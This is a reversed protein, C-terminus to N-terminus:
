SYNNTFITFFFVFGLFTHVCRKVPPDQIVMEKLKTVLNNYNTSQELIEEEM